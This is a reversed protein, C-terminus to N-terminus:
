EIELLVEGPTVRDGRNVHVAKVCGDITAQIETEMKMAETVLVPQGAHLDDGVEVLVSVINGPMSTSVHGPHTAQARGAPGESQFDNLPEFAVEHPVGDMTLYLQRRGSGKVGVGTIEIQYSEGHVDVLFETPTGSNEASSGGITKAPSLLEEPKLTGAERQEIFEKGLEAFM